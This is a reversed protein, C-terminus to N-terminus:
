GCRATARLCSAKDCVRWIYPTLADNIASITDQTRSGGCDIIIDSATIRVVETSHFRTVAFRRGGTFDQHQAERVRRIASATSCPAM